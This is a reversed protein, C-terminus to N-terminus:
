FIAYKGTQQHHFLKPPTSLFSITEGLLPFLWFNGRPVKVGDVSKDRLSTVYYLTYFFLLVPVGLLLTLLVRPEVSFAMGTIMSHVM